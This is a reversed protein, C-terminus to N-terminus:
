DDKVSRWSLITKEIMKAAPLAARNDGNMKVLVNIGVISAMLMESAQNIDLGIVLTGQSQEHKLAQIIASQMVDMFDLGRQKIAANELDGECLTNIV